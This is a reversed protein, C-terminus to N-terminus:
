LQRRNNFYFYPYLYCSTLAGLYVGALVDSLFHANLLIRTSAILILLSLFLFFLRRFVFSLAMMVAAVTTTHGSPFSWYKAQTHFFYFGYHNSNILLTPRARSLIIKIIVCIVSSVVLVLLMYSLFRYINKNNTSFYNILAIIGLSIFYYHSKGLQTILHLAPTFPQLWGHHTLDHAYFAIQRDIFLYSVIILGLCSLAFYPSRLTNIIKEFAM